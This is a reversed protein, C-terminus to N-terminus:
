AGEGTEKHRRFRIVGIEDLVRGEQRLGERQVQEVHREKLKELTQKEQMAQTLEERRAQVQKVLAMVRELEEHELTELQELYAYQRVVQTCDLLGGGQERQIDAVLSRIRERARQLARRQEQLANEAVALAQQRVEVVQERYNLVSQLRFQSQGM